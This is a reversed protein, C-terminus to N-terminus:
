HSNTRKKDSKSINDFCYTLFVEMGIAEIDVEDDEVRLEDM